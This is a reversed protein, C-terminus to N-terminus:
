MIAGRRRGNSVGGFSPVWFPSCARNVLPGSFLPLDTGGALIDRLLEDAPSPTPAKVPKEPEDAKVLVASSQRELNSNPPLEVSEFRLWIPKFPEGDKMKTSTISLVGDLKERQVAAEWDVSGKFAM